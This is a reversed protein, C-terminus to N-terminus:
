ARKQLHLYWLEVREISLESYRQKRYLSQNFSPNLRRKELSDWQASDMQDFFISRGDVIPSTVLCFVEGKARLHRKAFSLFRLPLEVGLNGGDRHPRPGGPNPVAMPPNFVAVDWEDASALEEARSEGIPAQEFTVNM